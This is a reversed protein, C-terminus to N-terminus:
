VSEHGGLRGVVRWRGRPCQCSSLCCLRQAASGCNGERDVPRRPRSRREGTGSLGLSYLGRCCDSCNRLLISHRFGFDGTRTVTEPLFTYYPPIQPPLSHTYPSHSLSLTYPQFSHSLTHTHTPHTFTHPPSLHHTCGFNRKKLNTQMSHACM